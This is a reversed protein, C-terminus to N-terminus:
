LQNNPHPWFFLYRPHFQNKYFLPFISLVILDLIHAHNGLRDPIRTSFEAPQYFNNVALVEAESGTNSANPLHLLCCVVYVNFDDPIEIQWSPDTSTLTDM